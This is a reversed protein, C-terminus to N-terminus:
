GLWFSFYLYGGVIIALVAATGLHDGPKISNKWEARVEPSMTKFTLNHLKEESPPEGGMSVGLIVLASLLTLWGCAYYGNFNGIDALIGETLVGSKALTQLTLKTMGAVFGVVLGAFAGSANV